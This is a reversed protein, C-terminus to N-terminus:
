NGDKNVLESITAKMREVDLPKALHANMGAALAHEIDDTFANATMAIIPIREAELRKEDSVDAFENGEPDAMSRIAQSAELGTMVPMQIDLLIADYEGVPAKAFKEVAELGNSEITVEAGNMRLVESLIEANLNNDEAALLNFGIIDGDAHPPEAKEVHCPADIKDPLLMPIVIRFTTGLGVKSKVSINGGMMNVLSATIPMGLGTGQENEWSESQERTFPEFLVKQYEESMGRGDDSVTFVVADFKDSKEDGAEVTLSIHGGEATYKNANSLVNLLIQQLRARDAYYVHNRLGTIDITFEQSKADTQSRIIEDVMEITEILNFEENKLKVRGSEIKSMDLVDNILDLLHDASALIKGAEDRVKDPEEADRSLLQAFGIIANMPTRIDHSMRSLFDTKAQGAAEASNLAERLIEANREERAVAETVDSMIFSIFDHTDDLYRYNALMRRGDLTFNFSYMDKDSLENIINDVSVARRFEAAEEADGTRAAKEEMGDEITMDTKSDDIQKGDLYFHEVRHTTTDILGYAYFEKEALQALIMDEKTSHDVDVTYAILETDGTGPNRLLHFFTQVWLYKRGETQRRYTYSFKTEGARYREILRERSCNATFDGRVDDDTIIAGVKSLLEDATSADLIHQTFESAGHCDLCLNKSLNLHYACRSNPNTVLLEQIIRDFEAQQAMQATADTYVSYINYRGDPKRITRSRCAFYQGTPAAPTKLRFVAEASKGEGECM